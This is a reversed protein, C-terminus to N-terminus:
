DDGDSDGIFDQDDEIGEVVIGEIDDRNWAIVDVNTEITNDLDQQFEVVNEQFPEDELVMDYVDRPQTKIVVRWDDSKPDKVYFVQQAQYALIFHENTNLTRTVNVCTFGYEDQKMGGRTMVDRWECEFLVIHNGGPYRLELVDKLVGYYGVNGRKPNVDRACTFSSTEATVFVGSNQTKRQKEIDEIHFRFGNIICGTFRNALRSPGSALWELQENLEVGDQRM